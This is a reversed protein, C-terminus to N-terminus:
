LNTHKGYRQTNNSEHTLLTDQVRVVWMRVQRTVFFRAFNKKEHKTFCAVDSNLETQLLTAFCTTCKKKNGTKGDSDVRASQDRTERFAVLVSTKKQAQSIGSTFSPNTKKPM